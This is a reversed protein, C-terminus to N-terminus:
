EPEKKLFEASKELLSERSMGSVLKAKDFFSKAAYFEAETGFDTGYGTEYGELFKALSSDVSDAGLLKNYLHFKNNALFVGVDKAVPGITGQLDISYLGDPEQIFHLLSPDGHLMGFKSIYSKEKLQELMGKLASAAESDFQARDLGFYFSRFEDTEGLVYKKEEADIEHLRSMWGNCAELSKDIDSVEKINELYSRGLLRQQLLIGDEPYFGILEAVKYPPKDFGIQWLKKMCGAENELLRKQAPSSGAVKAVLGKHRFEPTYFFFVQNDITQMLARDEISIPTFERIRKQLKQVLESNVDIM